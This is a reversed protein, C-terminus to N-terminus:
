TNVKMPLNTMAKNIEVAIGAEMMDMPIVDCGISVHHAVDKNKMEATIYQGSFHEFLYYPICRDISIATEM